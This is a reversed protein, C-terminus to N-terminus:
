MMDERLRARRLNDWWTRMRRENGMRLQELADAGRIDHNGVGSVGNAEHLARTLHRDGDSSGRSALHCVIMLDFVEEVLRVLPADDCLPVEIEQWQGNGSVTRDLRLQNRLALEILGSGCGMDGGQEVGLPVPQCSVRESVMRQPPVGVGPVFESSFGAPVEIDAAACALEEPHKGRRGRGVTVAGTGAGPLKRAAPRSA